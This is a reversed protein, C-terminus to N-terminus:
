DRKKLNIVTLFTFLFIFSLFYVVSRLDVIGKIFNNFHYTPSLYSLIEQIIRPFIGVFFDSGIILLFFCIITSLLYSIIQNKTLSSFYIGLSIFSFGLLLSGFYGVIVEPIYIRSIFTLTIPISFTLSMTVVLFIALSYLKSIVITSEKIPLSILTEITNLRKEESFIRMSLAPIFFLFLWPLSDFFPRMTSDGRLFLDKIFLFNAFVAFLFAVIYGTPNSFYFLLEKKIVTKMNKNLLNELYNKQIEKKRQNAEM